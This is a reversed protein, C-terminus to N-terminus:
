DDPWAHAGGVAPWTALLYWYVPDAARPTSGVDMPCHQGMTLAHLRAELGLEAALAGHSRPCTM